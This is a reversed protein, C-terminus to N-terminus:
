TKLITKNLINTRRSAGSDSIRRNQNEDLMKNCDGVFSKM